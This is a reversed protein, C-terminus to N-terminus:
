GTNEAVIYATAYLSYVLPSYMQLIISDQQDRWVIKGLCTKRRCKKYDHSIKPPFLLHSVSLWNLSQPTQPKIQLRMSSAPWFKLGQM